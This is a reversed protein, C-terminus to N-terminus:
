VASLGADGAPASRELFRLALELLQLDERRAAAHGARADRDLDVSAEVLAREGVEDVLQAVRAGLRDRDVVRTHTGAAPEGRTGGAREDDVRLLHASRPADAGNPRGL